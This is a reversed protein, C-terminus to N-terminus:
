KVRRWTRDIEFYQYCDRHEQCCAWDPWYEQPPNLYAPSVEVGNEDMIRMSIIGRHPVSVHDVNLAQRAASYFCCMNYPGYIETCVIRDGQGYRGDKGITFIVTYM